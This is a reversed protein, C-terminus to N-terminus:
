RGKKKQKLMEVTRELRRQRTQARKADEIWRVYEKRHTYSLQNFFKEAEPNRKLVDQLDQPITVERPTTDEAVLITVEDGYTKGIETRIKKLVGLIHESGGMRVLSGRYPHGDITAKVKVRKKGFVQEVDFPVVVYAGGKGADQIVATFKHEKKM